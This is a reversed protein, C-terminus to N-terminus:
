LLAELSMVSKSTQANGLFLFDLYRSFSVNNKDEFLFVLENHMLPWLILLFSKRALTVKLGNKPKLIAFIIRANVNIVM